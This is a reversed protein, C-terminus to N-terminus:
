PDDVEDFLDKIKVGLAKAIIELTMLQCSALQGIGGGRRSRMITEEALGTERVLQKLTVGKEKMVKKVNSVIM